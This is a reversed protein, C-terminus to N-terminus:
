FWIPDSFHLKRVPLSRLYRPKLEEDIEISNFEILSSPLGYKQGALLSNELEFFYEIVNLLSQAQKTDKHVAVSITWLPISSCSLKFSISESNSRKLSLWKHISDFTIWSKKQIFDSHPSESVYVFSSKKNEFLSPWSQSLFEYVSSNIAMKQEEKQRLLDDWCSFEEKLKENWYIFGFLGWAIPLGYKSNEDMLDASTLNKLRKFTSFKSLDVLNSKLKKVQFHKAFVLDYQNKKFLFEWDHVSAASDIKLELNKKALIQKILKAPYYNQYTLVRIHLRQSFSKKQLVKLGWFGGFFFSIPIVFLLLRKTNQSSTNKM